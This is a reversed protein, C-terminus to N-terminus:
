ESTSGNPVELLTDTRGMNEILAWTADYIPWDSEVVVCQLAQKGNLMRSREVIRCIGELMGLQREDLAGEIDSRKLVVYRSMDRTFKSAQAAM